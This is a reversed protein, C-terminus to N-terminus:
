RTLSRASKQFAIVRITVQLEQLKEKFLAAMLYTENQLHTTVVRVTQLPSVEFARNLSGPRPDMREWSGEILHARLHIRSDSELVEVRGAMRSFLALVNAVHDKPVDLALSAPLLPCRCRSVGCPYGGIISGGEIRVGEYPFEPSSKRDILTAAYRIGDGVDRSIVALQRLGAELAAPPVSRADIFYSGSRGKESWSLSSSNRDFTFALQSKFIPGNRTEGTINMMLERDVEFRIPASGIEACQLLPVSPSIVFSADKTRSIIKLASSSVEITLFPAGSKPLVAAKLVKKLKTAEIEFEYIGGRHLNPDRDPWLEISTQSNPANPVGAVSQEASIAPATM